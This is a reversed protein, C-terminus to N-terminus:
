QYEWIDVTNPLRLLYPSVQGKQLRGYGIGPYNLAITTRPNEDCFQMLKLVSRRIIEPDSDLWWARKTQFLGLRGSVFPVFNYENFLNQEKGFHELLYSGAVEPLGPYRVVAQKAIGAEMVLEGWDNCSANTTILFLDVRDHAFWMDGKKFLAM